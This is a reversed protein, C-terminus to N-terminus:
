EKVYFDYKITWTFEKGPEVAIKIYPEPCLTTHISWFALDSMPQDSTIKVGAGTISNEIQINYDEPRDSFGELYYFM